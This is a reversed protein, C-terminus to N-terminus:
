KSSKTGALGKDEERDIIDRQGKLTIRNLKDHLYADNIVKAKKNLERAEEYDGKKMHIDASSYYITFLYNQRAKLDGPLDSRDESAVTNVLIKEASQFGKLAEKFHNENYHFWALGATAVAAQPSNKDPCLLLVKRYLRKTKDAQHIKQHYKQALLITKSVLKRLEPGKSTDFLGEFEPYISFPYEFEDSMVLSELVISVDDQVKELLPTGRRQRGEKLLRLVVGKTEGLRKLAVSCLARERLIDFHLKPNLESDVYKDAAALQLAARKFHKKEFQAIALKALNVFVRQQLFHYNDSRSLVEFLKDVKVHKVIDVGNLGVLSVAVCDDPLNFGSLMELGKVSVDTNYLLIEKLRTGKLVALDGDDISTASVDLKLLKPFLPVFKLSELPSDNVVLTTLESDAFNKVGESTVSTKSIKVSRADTYGRFQRLDEDSYFNELVVNPEHSTLIRKITDIKVNADTTGDATSVDSPLRALPSSMPGTRVVFMAPIAVALLLLVVTVPHFFPGSAPEVTDTVASEEIKNESQAEQFGSIAFLEDRVQLASAPRNEPLKELLRSILLSLQEPVKEGIATDSMAPPAASCHQTLTDLATDGQFPPRGTLSFFMVCGLSYLDSAVTVPKGNAQEPSMFNPTGIIQGTMTLRLMEEESVDIRKSIGFDLLKATLRGSMEHVSINAPKIDRHVIGVTSAAELAGCLDVFVSFFEALTLCSNKHVFAQLDCGELLEVVMYPTGDDSVGFNFLRLIAPHVLRSANRAENQFRILSQNDNARSKLVKLALLKDLNLDRIEFVDAMGGSGIRRVIKYYGFVTQGPRFRDDGPSSEFEQPEGAM